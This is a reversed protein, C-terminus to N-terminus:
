KTHSTTPEIEVHESVYKIVQGAVKQGFSKNVKIVVPEGYTNTNGEEDVVNTIKVTKIEDPGVYASGAIMAEAFFKRAKPGLKLKIPKMM